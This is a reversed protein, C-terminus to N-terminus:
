YAGSGATALVFCFAILLGIGTALINAGWLQVDIPGPEDDDGGAEHGSGHAGTSSPGPTPEEHDPAANAHTMAESSGEPPM